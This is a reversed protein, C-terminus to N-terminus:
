GRVVGLDALTILDFHIVGAVAAWLATALVTACLVKWRLGPDVPASGPTGPIVEDGESQSRIRLPLMWFFALPWLVAYLM